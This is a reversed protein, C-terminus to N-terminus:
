KVAGRWLSNRFNQIVQERRSPRRQSGSVTISVALRRRSASSAQAVGASASAQGTNSRSNASCPSGSRKRLSLPEGKAAIPTVPSVVSATRNILSPMPRSRMWGPLRLLVAAM